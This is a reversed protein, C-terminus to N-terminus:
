VIYRKSPASFPGTFYLDHIEFDLSHIIFKCQNDFCFSGKQKGIDHMSDMAAPSNLISLTYWLLPESLTEERRGNAQGLYSLVAQLVVRVHSAERNLTALIQFIHDGISLPELSMLPECGQSFFSPNLMAAMAMTSCHGLAFLFNSITEKNTLVLDALRVPASPQPPPTSSWSSAFASSAAASLGAVDGNREKDDDSMSTPPTPYAVNGSHFSGRGGVPSWVSTGFPDPSISVKVLENVLQLLGCMLAERSNENQLVRSAGAKLKGALVNALNARATGNNDSSLHTVGSGDIVHEYTLLAINDVMTAISSMDASSFTQELILELLTIQADLPGVGASIAERNM